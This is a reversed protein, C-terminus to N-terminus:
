LEECGCRVKSKPRMTLGHRLILQYSYERLEKDNVGSRCSKRDSFDLAELRCESVSLVLKAHMWELM